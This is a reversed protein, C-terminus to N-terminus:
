GGVSESGQLFRGKFQKYIPWVSHGLIYRLYKSRRGLYLNATYKLLHLVFKRYMKPFETHGIHVIQPSIEELSHIQALIVSIHRIHINYM